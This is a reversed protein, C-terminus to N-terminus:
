DQSVGDNVEKDLDCLICIGHRCETDGIGILREQRSLTYNPTEGLTEILKEVTPSKRKQRLLHGRYKERDALARDVDDVTQRWILCQKCLM